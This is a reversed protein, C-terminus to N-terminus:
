VSKRSPATISSRSKMEMHMREDPISASRQTLGNVQMLLQGADKFADFDFGELAHHV